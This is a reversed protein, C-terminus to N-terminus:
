WMMNMQPQQMYQNNHSDYTSRYDMPQYGRFSQYNYQMSPPNYQSINNIPKEGYKLIIKGTKKDVATIFSDIDHDENLVVKDGILVPSSSAGFEDQFPGM